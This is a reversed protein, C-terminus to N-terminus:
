GKLKLKEVANIFDTAHKLTVEYPDTRNTEYVIAPTGSNIIPITVYAPSSPGADGPPQYYVIGPIEPILKQAIYLSKSDEVPVVIFFQKQYNDDKNSHVDVVLSYHNRIIDPVAFKNALIQGHMRGENYSDRDKTVNVNYIYYSYNTSKNLSIVSQIMAIHSDNELPHVGVVYAIKQTANPNGFPGIKVVTGYDTGGLVQPTKSSFTDISSNENVTNSSSLVSGVVSLTLVAVIVFTIYFILKKNM